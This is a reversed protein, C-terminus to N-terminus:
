RVPRMLAIFMPAISTRGVWSLSFVILQGSTAPLATLLESSTAKQEDDFPLRSVTAAVNINNPPAAHPAGPGARRLM